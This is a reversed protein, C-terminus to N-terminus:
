KKRPIWYPARDFGDNLRPDQNAELEAMLKEHLKRRVKQYDPNEARNVMQHPDKRLDYLEYKPRKGWAFDIYESLEEKDRNLVLWAKTPGADIDQIGIRTNTELQEVTIDAKTGIAGLKGMPWRDPKFNISYLYNPTRLARTPYPMFNDRATEVHRERGILAWGRMGDTSANEALFPLLDEGNPDDESKLGAAALFTPALDVLSVPTDIKGKPAIKSPWRMSLLVRAGFDNVNCKGRPYGPIGHDGSIVILTNELEGLDEVMKILEGCALDFAMAEGLYDAFDERIIENDPLFPPMKGKLEDPELGWLAKGSGRVWLRHTNTPNFSYFFPQGEKRKTLFDQFNGRVENFLKEKAADTDTAKSVYQSFQNFSRGKTNYRNKPHGILKPNTHWKNSYGIHYGAEQLTVPMGKVNMFPDPHSKDWPSHLQSSSGNRFFHRGTYVAGRCPTCSPASVFANTFYVGEYAIRDFVPTRIIDNVSPNEPDSYASAYRGLDDAFLFLINPKNQGTESWAANLSLILLPLHLKIRHMTKM